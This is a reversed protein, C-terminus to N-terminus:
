QGRIELVPPDGDIWKCVRCKIASPAPAEIKHAAIMLDLSSQWGDPLPSACRPCKGIALCSSCPEDPRDEDLGLVGGDGGCQLCCNPWRRRKEFINDSAREVPATDKPMDGIYVVPVKKKETM